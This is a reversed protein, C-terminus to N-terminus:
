GVGSRPRRSLSPVMSGSAGCRQGRHKPQGSSERDAGGRVGDIFKRHRRGYRPAGQRRRNSLSAAVQDLLGEDRAVLAVASGAELLRGAIALGMGRSGGTVLAM